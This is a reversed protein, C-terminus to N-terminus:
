QVFPCKLTPGFALGGGGNGDGVYWGYDYLQIDYLVMMM